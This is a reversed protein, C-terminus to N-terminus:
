GAELTPALRPLAEHIERETPLSSQAGQTLCALGGAVSAWRLAEGPDLGRDLAAAFVGVAADGAGTTDAPTIPLAPVRWRAEGKCAAIGRAGLTIVVGINFASAITKADGESSLGQAKALDVAEGENLILWDLKRLLDSPVPGAPALNLLITVGRTAARRALSWIEEATVERQLMLITGQQLLADPVARQTLKANAGLAVAIQNEGKPDVCILACGTPASADRVLHDLGVGAAVLEALAPEAFADRGVCGVFHAEAGARRAALAQNAGKGGPLTRYGPGLVTEGPRPLREVSAILDLNVAGFSIIM